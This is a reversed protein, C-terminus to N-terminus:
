CAVIESVCEGEPAIHLTLRNSAENGNEEKMTSSCKEEKINNFLLM